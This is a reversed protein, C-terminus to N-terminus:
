HWLYFGPPQCYGLDAGSYLPMMSSTSTAGRSFPWAESSHDSEVRTATFRAAATMRKATATPPPAMGRQSTVRAPDEEPALSSRERDNESPLISDAPTITDAPKTCRSPSAMSSMPSVSKGTAGRSQAVPSSIVMTASAMADLTEHSPPCPSARFVWLAAHQSASPYKCAISPPPPWLPAESPAPPRAARTEKRVAVRRPHARANWENRSPAASPAWSVASRVSSMKTAIAACLPRAAYARPELRTSLRAVTELIHLTSSKKATAVGTPITEPSSSASNAAPVAAAPQLAKAEPVKRYTASISTM